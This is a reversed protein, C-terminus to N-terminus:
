ASYSRTVIDIALPTFPLRNFEFNSEGENIRDLFEIVASESDDSGIFRFRFFSRNQSVKHIAWGNGTLRATHEKIEYSRTTSDNSLSVTSGVEEYGDEHISFDEIKLFADPNNPDPVSCTLPMRIPWYNEQDGGADYSSSSPTATLETVPISTVTPVNVAVNAARDEFPGFNM